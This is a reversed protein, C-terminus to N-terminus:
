TGETLTVKPPSLNTTQFEYLLFKTKKHTYTGAFSHNGRPFYAEAKFYILHLTFFPTAVKLWECAYTRM